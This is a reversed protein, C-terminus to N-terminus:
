QPWAMAPMPQRRAIGSGKQYWFLLGNPFFGLLIFVKLIRFGLCHAPLFDGVWRVMSPIWQM